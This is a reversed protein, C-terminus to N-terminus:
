KRDLSLARRCDGWGTILNLSAIGFDMKSSAICIGLTDLILNKTKELVDLPIEEYTLGHTFRSLTEAITGDIRM